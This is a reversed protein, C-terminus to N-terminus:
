RTLGVCDAKSNHFEMNVRPKVDRTPECACLHLAKCFQRGRVRARKWALVYALQKDGWMLWGDNVTDPHGGAGWLNVLRMSVYIEILTYAFM